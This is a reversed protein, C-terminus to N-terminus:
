EKLEIKIMKLKGEILDFEYTILRTEQEEVTEGIRYQYEVLIESKSIEIITAKSTVV